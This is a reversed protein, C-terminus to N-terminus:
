NFLKIYIKVQNKKHSSLVLTQTFNLSYLYRITIRCNQSQRLYCKHLLTVYSKIFVKKGYFDGLATECYIWHLYAFYVSSTKYMCITNAPQTTLFKFQVISYYTTIYCITLCM